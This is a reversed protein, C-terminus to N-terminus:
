IAKPLPQRGLFQTVENFLQTSGLDRPVIHAGQALCIFQVEQAHKLGLSLRRAGESSVVRDRPAVVILTRCVVGELKQCAEKRLDWLQELWATPYKRLIPAAQQVKLDDINTAEKHQWPLLKGIVPLHHLLRMSWRNFGVFRIAPAILVLERISGPHEAALIIALLAGMSLGVVVISRHTKELERLAKECATKWDTGTVSPLAQEVNQHGPLCVAKVRYGEAALSEGLPRM